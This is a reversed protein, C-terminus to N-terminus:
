RSTHQCKTTGIQVVREPGKNGWFTHACVRFAVPSIQDMEWVYHQPPHSRSLYFLSCLTHHSFSYATVFSTHKVCLGCAYELYIEDQRRGTSTLSLLNYLHTSYEAKKEKTRGVVVM